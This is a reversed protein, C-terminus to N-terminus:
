DPTFNVLYSPYQGSIPNYNLTVDANRRRDRSTDRIDVVEENSYYYPEPTQYYAM